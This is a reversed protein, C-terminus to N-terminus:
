GIQEDAGAHLRQESWRSRLWMPYSTPEGAALLLPSWVAFLERTAKSPAAGVIDVAITCSLEDGLRLRGIEVDHRRWLQKRVEMRPGALLGDLGRRDVRRKIWHEALGPVGAIEYPVAPGVRAKYELPGNGNRRKLSSSPGLSEVFYVDTRLQARGAPRLDDEVDGALFWRLEKSSRQDRGKPRRVTFPLLEPVGVRPTPEWDGRAPM